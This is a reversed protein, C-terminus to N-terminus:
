PSPPPPTVTVTATPVTSPLLGPFESAPGETKLQGVFEVGGIVGGRWTKVTMEEVPISIDEIQELAHDPTVIVVNGITSILEDLSWSIEDYNDRADQDTQVFRTTTPLLVSGDPFVIRDTNVAFPQIVLKGNEDFAGGIMIRVNPYGPLEMFGLNIFKAEGQLITRQPDIQRGNIETILHLDPNESIINPLNNRYRIIEEAINNTVTPYHSRFGYTIKGNVNCSRIYNAPDYMREIVWQDFPLSEYEGTAQ